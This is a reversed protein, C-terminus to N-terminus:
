SRSAKKTPMLLAWPEVRFVVALTSITDLGAGRSGRELHAIYNTSFGAKAALEEQTLGSADRLNRVNRGLAKKLNTVDIKRM